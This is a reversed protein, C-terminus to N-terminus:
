ENGKSSSSFILGIQPSFGLTPHHHSSINITLHNINIGIGFSSLLAISNLGMRLTLLDSPQYEIGSKYIAPKDIDKETEIIVLLKESFNYHAGIKIITPLKESNYNKFSALTPNYIHAGISLNKVPKSIVGLEGIFNNKNGYSDAIRTNLYDFSLGISM